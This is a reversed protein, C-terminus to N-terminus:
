SPAPKQRRLPPATSRATLLSSNEPQPTPDQRPQRLRSYDESRLLCITFEKTKGNDPSNFTARKRYATSLANGLGDALEYANGDTIFADRLAQQQQRDFEATGAYRIQGHQISSTVQLNGALASKGNDTNNLASIPSLGRLAILNTSSFGLEAESIEAPTSTKFAEASAASNVAAREATAVEEEHHRSLGWQDPTTETKAVQPTAPVVHVIRYGHTKLENLIIPPAEVTREHIDHLLLIGRGKAELRSMARRVIEASSIRKWDDAPFDASWTMLGRAVLAAETPKATLFGPVRFFPALENPDGLADQVAEIGADIEKGAQQENMRGFTFPHSYSHTGITHGESFVRRVDDPHAKAMEGVMLFTAKVCETALTDLIRNTYKPIPGDDFTIVVEHDALPLTEQYQMTGIRTHEKPDVAIVRSVGLANQNGSCTAALGQSIVGTSALLAVATYALRKTILM